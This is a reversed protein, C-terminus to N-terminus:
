VRHNVIKVFNKDDGSRYIEFGKINQESATQWQLKAYSAAIQATYNFLEVPLAPDIIQLTQVEEKPEYAADGAQVATIEVTGAGKIKVKWIGNDQYVLAITPDSSVFTVPLGTSATASIVFDASSITKDALAAFNITQSFLGRYEYAGM